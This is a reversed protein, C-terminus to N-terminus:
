TENFGYQGILPVFRVDCVSRETTGVPKKECIILRQVAEDGVPAVLLGGTKLQNIVPEPLQPVAATIIIRDFLKAEPWGSSGDGIYFEINTVGIRALCSQAYESLQNLREVSYIKGALKSLVAAQYGSGTGLELVHCDKNLRLLQTMLAVIYPQSITQGMGIPLPMDNYAQDQYKEPVFEERPMQGMVKLVAEDLIGRGKLDRLVMQRRALSFRDQNENTM